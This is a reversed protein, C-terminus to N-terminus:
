APTIAAGRGDNVTGIGPRAGRTSPGRVKTIPTMLTVGSEKESPPVASSADRARSMATAMSAAPASMMLMPASDVRGPALGTSAASSSARTSGATFAIAAATRTGMEISVCRGGGGLLKFFSRRRLRFRYAPPESLEYREPEIFVEEDRAKM